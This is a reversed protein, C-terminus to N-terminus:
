AIGNRVAWAVVATRSALDLKALIHAVHNEVTRNSISLRAGIARNSHGEVLLRLVDLERSSIPRRPVPTPAGGGPRAPPSYHADM